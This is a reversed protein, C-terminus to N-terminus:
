GNSPNNNRRQFVTDDSFSAGGDNGDYGGFQNGSGGGGGGNGGFQQFQNSPLAFGRRDQQGGFNGGGSNGMNGSFGGSFNDEAFDHGGQQPM